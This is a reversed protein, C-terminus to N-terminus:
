LLNTPVTAYTSPSKLFAKYWKAFNPRGNCWDDVPKRIDLYGLACGTAINVITM